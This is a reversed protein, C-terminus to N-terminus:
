TKKNQIYTVKQVSNNICFFNPNVDGLREGVREEIQTYKYTTEM